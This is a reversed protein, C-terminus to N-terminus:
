PAASQFRFSSQATHRVHYRCGTKDQRSHCMWRNGMLQLDDVRSFITFCVVDEDGGVWRGGGFVADKM